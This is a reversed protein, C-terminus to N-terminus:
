PSAEKWQTCVGYDSSIKVSQQTDTTNQVCITYRGLMNQPAALSLVTQNSQIYAIPSEVSEFPSFRRLHVWRAVAYADSLLDIYANEDTESWPLGFMSHLIVDDAGCYKEAAYQADARLIRCSLPITQQKVTGQQDTREITTADIGAQALLPIIVESMEAPGVIAGDPKDASLRMTEIKAMPTGQDLLHQVYRNMIDAAWPYLVVKRLRQITFDLNSASLTSYRKDLKRVMKDVTLCYCSSKPLCIQQVDGFRLAAIECLDLGSYMLSVLFLAYLCDPESLIKFLKTRQQTDLHGPQFAHILASNRKHTTDILSALATYSGALRCGNQEIQSFIDRYARKTYGRQSEQADKSKLYRNIKQIIVKMRTADLACLLVNGVAPIIVHRLAAQMHRKADPSASAFLNDGMYEAYQALTIQGHRLNNMWTPRFLIRALERLQTEHEKMLLAKAREKTPGRRTVQFTNEASAGPRDILKRISQIHVDIIPALSPNQKKRELLGTLVEGKTYPKRTAPNILMFIADQQGRTPHTILRRKGGEFFSDNKSAGM